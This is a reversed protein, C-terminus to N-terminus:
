LYSAVTDAAGWSCLYGMGNFGTCHILQRGDTTVTNEIWPTSREPRTARRVEIIDAASLKLGPEVRMARDLIAQTQSEDVELTEGGDFFGGITIYDAHPVICCRNNPGEDDTKCVSIHQNNDKRVRVVQVRVPFISTDGTLARTGLGTCNIITDFESPTDVFQKVEHQEIKVGAAVVRSRLWPLYKEPDIVPTNDIALGDAYQDTLEAATAHRFGDVNAYWPEEGKHQKLVIATRLEIGSQNDSVLAAFEARTVETIPLIRPDATYVPVWLAYASASTNPLATAGELSWITVDHGAQRARLAVSLGIVGGGVVLINKTNTKTM